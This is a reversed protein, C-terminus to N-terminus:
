NRSGPKIPKSGTACLPCNEPEYTPINLQLLSELQVGFDARGGSRDVLVGVGIVQGGMTKVINIVEQVSGGTTIVDEVVLVRQGPTINFGRRLLMEGQQRETFIAEVGLARAVEYAVIIGGMAPGIVIDVQGKFRDGLEKGLEETYNPFRLVQACQIYQNSHKGSTLLFHGENLAKAEKFIEIIREESLM